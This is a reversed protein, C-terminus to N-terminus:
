ESWNVTDVNTLIFGADKPNSRIVGGSKLGKINLVNVNKIEAVMKYNFSCNILEFKGHVPGGCNVNFDVSDGTEFTCNVFRINKYFGGNLGGLNIGSDRNWKKSVIFDCNEFLYNKISNGMNLCGLRVACGRETYGLINRIIFNETNRKIEPWLYASKKYQYRYQGSAFIDDGGYLFCNEILVDKGCSINIGDTWMPSSEIPSIVKYNSITFNKCYHSHMHWEGSNRVLVDKISINECTQIWFPYPCGQTRYFWLEYNAKGNCDIIGRGKVTINKSSVIKFFAEEEISTQRIMKNLLVGDELYITIPKLRKLFNIVRFKYVGSPFYLINKGNTEYLYSVAKQLNETEDFTGDTNNVFDAVNVVSLNSASPSDEELPDVILCFNELDNIRIILHCPTKSTSFLVTEGSVSSKIEARDPKIIYNTIIEPITIEFFLKGSASLRAYHVSFLYDVEVPQWDSSLSTKVKLSFVQSQTTLPTSKYLRLETAKSNQIGAIYLVIFLVLNLFIYFGLGFKNKMIYKDTKNKM